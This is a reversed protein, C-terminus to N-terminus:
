QFRSNNFREIETMSVVYYTVQKGENLVKASLKGDRILSLVYNYDGKGKTNTILKMDTIERPSFYKEGSAEIM